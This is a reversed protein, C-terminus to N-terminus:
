NNSGEMGLTSNQYVIRGVGGRGAGPVGVPGLVEVGIFPVVAHTAQDTVEAAASAGYLAAPWTVSCLVCCVACLVSSSRPWQKAPEVSSPKLVEANLM